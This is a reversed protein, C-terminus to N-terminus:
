GGFFGSGPQRPVNADPLAVIEQGASLGDTIETNVGDSLGTHVEVERTTPKGQADTTMVQVAHGTGKPLLASNPVLLVNDRHGTTIVLDATMGVRVKADTDPFSVRVAYTVVGNSNNAAPAIYSVKGTTDWGNLSAVALSVPQGLQVQAVDNESLRLDVHLPNRDILQMAPQANNSLTGTVVNVQSIVGAFPATLAADDLNLRAQQLAAEAQAVAAQQIAIDTATGPSSLKALNAKAQDLNGQAAAVDEPSPTLKALNARAQAVQAAAAQIKSQADSGSTRTLSDYNAKAQNYDITAQQLQLSQPLMGINPNSAVKDYAAQAQVLAAQTKQVNAAAAELQSDTTGGSTVAAQYAAEASSLAAQAAARDAATPGQSVKDFNAQASAVAAQASALDEPRADGQQVQLLRAKASALAAEANTVQLVLQRDDLRALVQGAVVSDGEKVLVETVTGTSQFGLDLNQQAAISGSGPVTSVINGRQVAVTASAASIPTPRKIAGGLLLAAVIAVVILAIGGALWRGSLGSRSRHLTTPTAM